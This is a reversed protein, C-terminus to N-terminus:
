PKCHLKEQGSEDDKILLFTFTKFDSNKDFLLKLHVLDNRVIKFEWFKELKDKYEEYYHPKYKKLDSITCEIKNHMRM